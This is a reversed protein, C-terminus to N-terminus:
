FCGDFLAPGFWNLGCGQGSLRGACARVGCCIEGCLIYIAVQQGAQPRHNGLLNYATRRLQHYALHSFCEHLALMSLPLSLSLSIRVSLCAPLCVPLPSSLLPSSLLPSFLLSSFLLSSFLHSSVLRSSVLRSSFLVSSFCKQVSAGITVSSVTLFQLFM